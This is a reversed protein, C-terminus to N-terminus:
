SSASYLDVYKVKKVQGADRQSSGTGYISSSSSRSTRSVVIVVSRSFCIMCIQCFFYIWIIFLSLFFFCCMTKVTVKEVTRGFVSYNNCVEFMDSRAEDIDLKDVLRDLIGAAMEYAITDSSKGAGGGTQRPQMDLITLVLTSTEQRQGRCDCSISAIM